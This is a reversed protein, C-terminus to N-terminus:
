SFAVRVSFTVTLEFYSDNWINGNLDAYTLRICAKVLDCTYFLVRDIPETVVSLYTSLWNDVPKSKLNQCDHNGSPKDVLCTGDLQGLAFDIM